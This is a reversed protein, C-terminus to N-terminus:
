LHLLRYAMGIWPWDERTLHNDGCAVDEEKASNVGSVSHSHFLSYNPQM